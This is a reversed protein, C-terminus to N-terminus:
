AANDVYGKGRAWGLAHDLRQEIRDLARALVGVPDEHDAVADAHSQPGGTLGADRLIEVVQDRTAGLGVGAEVINDFMESERAELADLVAQAKTTTGRPLRGGLAEMATERITSM